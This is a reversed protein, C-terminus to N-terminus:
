GQRTKNKRSMLDALDSRGEARLSDIAAFTDPAREDQGMKFKAELREIPLEFALVHPMRRAMGGPGLEKMHWEKERGREMHIVVDNLHRVMAKDGVVVPHGHAHVVSFNWTPASDRNPYGPYWSSSIYGHPGEFIAVCPSGDRIVECHPNAAALHSMLTGNEGRNRDLLFILHSVVLGNAGNSVLSGFVVDDILRFVEERDEPEFMPKTYM